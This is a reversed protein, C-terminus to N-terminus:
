RKLRMARWVASLQYIIAIDIGSPPFLAKARTLARTLVRRSAPKNLPLDPGRDGSCDWPHACSLTKCEPTSDGLAKRLIKM